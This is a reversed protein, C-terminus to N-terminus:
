CAYNCQRGTQRCRSSINRSCRKVGDSSGLSLISKVGLPLCRSRFDFLFNRVPSVNFILNQLLFGNLLFKNLVFDYIKPIQKPSEPM